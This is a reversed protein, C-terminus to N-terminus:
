GINSSDYEREARFVVFLSLPGLALDQSVPNEAVPLKAIESNGSASKM